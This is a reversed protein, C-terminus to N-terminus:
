FVHAIEVMAVTTTAENESTCKFINCKIFFVVTSSGRNQVRFKDGVFIDVRRIGPSLKKTDSEEISPCDM